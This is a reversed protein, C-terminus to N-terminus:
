LSLEGFLGFCQRSSGGIPIYEKIREQISLREPLKVSKRGSSGRIEWVKRAERAYKQQQRETYYTSIHRIKWCSISNL